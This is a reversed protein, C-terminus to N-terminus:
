GQPNKLWKVLQEGTMPKVTLFGQIIDCDQEKLAQAQWSAEAGVAGAKMGMHHALMIAARILVDGSVEQSMNKILSIDLKLLSFPLSHLATLSMSGRGFHDLHLAIGMENLKGLTMFRSQSLSAVAEEPVEVALSHCGLFDKQTLPTFWEILDPADLQSISLNVAIKLPPLALINWLAIDHYLESCMWKGIDRMLRAEEAANLFEHASLLGRKPHKWRLLVEIGQVVKDATTVYPQYYLQLQEATLATRLDEELSLRAVAEDHMDSAYFHYRNGGEKKAHYMATDAHQLLADPTIPENSFAIGISAGVELNKGNYLMPASLVRIFKQAVTAIDRPSSIGELLVAFEDGGFRAPTDYARLSTKIRQAVTKLAEDGADHGHVDNIPKFRDLDIFLIAVGTSLREARALAIRLRNIFMARNALGTLTDYNARHFLGKEVRKREMAYDISRSLVNIELEDKLLYDQAGRGVANKALSMDNLGTLVLVPMDPAKEQIDILASFGTTDPLTLDLLCVDFTKEALASIAESQTKVHHQKYDAKKSGDLLSGVLFADSPNDEVLLIGISTHSSEALASRAM